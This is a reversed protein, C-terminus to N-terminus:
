QSIWSPMRFSGYRNRCFTSEMTGTMIMTERHIFMPTPKRAKRAPRCFTGPSRYSAPEMSPM